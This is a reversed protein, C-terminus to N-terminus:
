LRFCPRVQKKRLPIPGDSDIPAPDAEEVHAANLWQEPSPATSGKVLCDGFWLCTRQGLRVPVPVSYDNRVTNM